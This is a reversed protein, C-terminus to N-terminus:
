FKYYHNDGSVSNHLKHTVLKYTQYPQQVPTPYLLSLQVTICSRTVKSRQYKRCCMSNYIKKSCNIYGFICYVYKKKSCILTVKSRQYKRCCMRNTRSSCPKFKIRLKLIISDIKVFWSCIVLIFKVPFFHSTRTKSILESLKTIYKM